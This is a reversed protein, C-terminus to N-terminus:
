KLKFNKVDYKSEKVSFIEDKSYYIKSSEVDVEEIGLMYDHFTQKKKSFAMLSFSVFLPVGFTVLSLLIELFFFIVFRLTFLFLDVGVRM